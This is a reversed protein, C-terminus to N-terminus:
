VNENKRLITLVSIYKRNKQKISKGKNEGVRYKTTM